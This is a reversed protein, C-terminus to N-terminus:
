HSNWSQQHHQPQSSSRPSQCPGEGNTRWQIMYTSGRQLPFAQWPISLCCIQTLASAKKIAHGSTCVNPNYGGAEWRHARCDSRRLCLSPEQKRQRILADGEQQQLCSFVFRSCWKSCQPNLHSRCPWLLMSGSSTLAAGTPLHPSSHPPNCLFSSSGPVTSLCPPTVAELMWWCQLCPLWGAM